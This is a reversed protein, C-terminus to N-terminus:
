RPRLSGLPAPVPTRRMGAARDLARAIAEQVPPSDENPIRARLLELTAEGPLRGLLDAALRRVDWADHDLCAGLHAIVRPDTADSLALMTAKVVEADSHALGELLADVRRPGAIRALAEVASVAVVPQASRFLPKLVPVAHVDGTEGLARVAVALLDPDASHAVLEMLHKAGAATGDHARMRGLAGVASRRVDREEDTLAFAIADVGEAGGLDALVEVAARRVHASDNSLAASLFTVDAARSGRAGGGLAGIAICAAHAEVGGPEAQTVLDRAAAPYRSCLEELAAEAAKVSATAEGRAFFRAVDPLCRADGFRALLGLGARQVEPSDDALATLGARVAAPAHEDEVLRSLLGLCSARARADGERVGEVLAPVARGGLLELAEDAEGLLRDDALAELACEASGPLALAGLVILAARRTDEPEQEDRVLAALKEGVAPSVRPRSGLLAALADSDRALERLALTVEVLGKGRASGLAAILLPVARADRSRGAALLAPRRRTPDQLCREITNWPLVSGLANLGELAALGTLADRAFLCAELLSTVESVGAAGLAAIAEVAAVRVNPDMDDLLATLLALASGRGSRGLAEVALKRGDADLRPLMARLSEVADDGYGGLAEVAANRLGVNGPESLTAVLRELLLPHPALALAVLVAEKRVRWDDDSLAQIVLAAPLELGAHGLESTARRREEPDGSSLRARLEDVRSM